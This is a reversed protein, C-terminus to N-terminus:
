AMRVLATLWSQAEELEHFRETYQTEKRDNVPYYFLATYKRGVDHANYIIHGVTSNSRWPTDASISWANGGNHAYWKVGHAM